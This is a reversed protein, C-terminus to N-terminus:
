LTNKALAYEVWSAMNNVHRYSPSCSMLQRDVKGAMVVSAKVLQFYSIPEERCYAIYVNISMQPLDGLMVALLSVWDTNLLCNKRFLTCGLVLADFVFVATGVICFALLAKLTAEEPPGYVLGKETVKLDYYFLWDSLLDIIDTVILVAYFCKKRTSTTCCM